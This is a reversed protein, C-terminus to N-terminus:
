PQLVGAIAASGYRLVVGNKVLAMDGMFRAMGMYDPNREMAFHFMAGTPMGQEDLEPVAFTLLKTAVNYRAGVIQHAMAKQKTVADANAPAVSETSQTNGPRMFDKFTIEVSVSGDLGPRLVLKSGKASISKYNEIKSPYGPDLTKFIVGLSQRQKVSVNEDMAAVLARRSDQNSVCFDYSARETADIPPAKWKTVWDITDPDDGPELDAWTTICQKAEFEKELQVKKMGMTQLEVTLQDLNASADKVTKVAVETEVENM